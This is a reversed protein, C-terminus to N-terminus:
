STVVFPFVEKQEEENLSWKALTTLTCFDSDLFLRRLFVLFLASEADRKFGDVGAHLSDFALCTHYWFSYTPCELAFLNRVDEKRRMVFHIIRNGRELQSEKAHIEQFLTECDAAFASVIADRIDEKRRFYQYFTSKAIGAKEIIDQIHIADYDMEGLLSLFARLLLKRNRRRTPSLSNENTRM